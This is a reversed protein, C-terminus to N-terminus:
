LSLRLYIAGPTPDDSYPGVEVFGMGRYLDLASAMNTLTDGYLNRYGSLRAEETLRALLSGAVGRRRYAPRVYLRKAECADPRLPRFAATGAPQGDIRVLLLRGAPPAYKGPLTRLEQAFDQFDLPLGLSQWYESWLEQVALIDRDSASQVLDVQWAM